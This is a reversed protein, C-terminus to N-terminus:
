KGMCFKDFIENALDDDLSEGLITGLQEYAAMLDISLFDEPMNRDISSLVQELSQEAEALAQKHRLNTIYVEDNMSLKGHFFMDKIIGYLKEMGEGTKASIEVVPANIKSTIWMKDVVQEIDIKNMVIIAKKGELLGIIQTDDADLPKNGDVVYLVLDAEEVSERAKDVGIKEVIDVTEHIGATDVIKLPIGHIMVDEELTDRTTGAIDTVIARNEGLLANLLSSKGANPKGLIVTRIGEKIMKGEEATDILHRIEKIIEELKEKLQESYGDLSYNEPDDLASEIFAIQNLLLSRIEKVRNSLSGKLQSISSRAALENKAHIMDMVSEAQTIDIRGGLFARKTFEGPEAARAGSNLILELIKRLMVIGGHCQVEVVDETTYSNPARMVLCIAEDLVCDGDCINGFLASYSKTMALKKDPNKARFVKDAVAIADEGSIRIIGIGANTMGTAIAAITDKQFM